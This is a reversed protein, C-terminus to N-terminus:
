LKEHSDAKDISREIYDYLRVDNRLLKRVTTSRRLAAELESAAALTLISVDSLKLTPMVPSLARKFLEFRSGIGVVSFASLNGLAIPVHRPEPEENPDCALGRTVPDRIATRQAQSLDAFVTSIDNTSFERLNEVCELLSSYHPPLAKVGNAGHKSDLITKVVLLRNALETFPEVILAAVCYDLAILKRYHTALALRGESFISGIADNGLLALASDIGLEDISPYSVLFQDGLSRKFLRSPVPLNNYILLKGTKYETSESRRYIIRQNALETIKLDYSSSFGPVNRDDFRFGVLGTEHLRADVLDPRYVNAELVVANIGNTEIRFKPVVTPNDPTLWGDVFDPTAYDIHFYM